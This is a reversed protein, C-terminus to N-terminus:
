SANGPAREYWEYCATALKVANKWENQVTFAEFFSGLRM